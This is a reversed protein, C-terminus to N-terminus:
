YGARVDVLGLLEQGAAFRSVNERVREALLPVAMERTTGTHPTIVCNELSWLPHGEPLPEPDTVELGAGGIVGGRLADVLDDTVIHRGRAVNVIWAHPEMLGLEDAGILGVTDPTLALALMVLDAGPLTDALRDPGVVDDVGEMHQVTPRVVTIHCDFPRLMRVLSEAIGGGGVITVRAGLLNRGRQESWSTAAAYTHISRLGALGLALAVEAVPDAYAGKGCTWVHDHDLVETFTEVGAWPLQIWTAEPAADVAESLGAPDAVDGWVIAEADVLPVIEGGGDTVAAALWEPVPDPGVAIRPTRSRSV